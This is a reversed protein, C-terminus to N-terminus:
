SLDGAQIARELESRVFRVHRGIRKCPLRGERAFQRVTRVPVGGLLAGVAEADLLPESLITLAHGRHHSVATAFDPDDLAAAVAVALRSATPSM